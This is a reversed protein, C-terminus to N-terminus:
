FYPAFCATQNRDPTSRGTIIALAAQARADNPSLALAARPTRPDDARIADVMPGDRIPDPDPCIGGDSTAARPAAPTSPGGCAALLALVILPFVPRM